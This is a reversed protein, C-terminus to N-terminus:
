RSRAFDLEPDPAPVDAQRVLFERSAPTLYRAAAEAAPVCAIAFRGAGWTGPRRRGRRFGVATALLVCGPTDPALALAAGEGTRGALVAAGVAADVLDHTETTPDLLAGAAWLEACAFVAEEHLLQDRWYNADAGALGSRQHGRHADVLAEVAVSGWAREGGLRSQLVGKLLRRWACLNEPGLLRVAEGTARALGWADAGAVLKRAVRELEEEDVGPPLNDNRALYRTWTMDRKRSLTRRFM